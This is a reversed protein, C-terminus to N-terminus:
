CARELPSFAVGNPALTIVETMLTWPVFFGRARWGHSLVTKAASETPWATRPAYSVRPAPLLYPIAYRISNHAVDKMSINSMKPM